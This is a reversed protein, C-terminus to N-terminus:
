VNEWELDTPDEPPRHFKINGLEPDPISRKKKKLPSLEAIPVNYKCILVHEGSKGIESIISSLHTKAEHINLKKM